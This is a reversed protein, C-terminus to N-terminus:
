PDDPKRTRKRAPKSAHELGIRALQRVADSLSPAGDQGARYAEIAALESPPFRLSIKPSIGTAPRGPRDHRTRKLKPPPPLPEILDIGMGIAAVKISKVARSVPIKFWEGALRHEGLLAHVRRELECVDGLGEASYYLSLPVHSSTRLQSLRKRPHAAIGIKIPGPESRVVYISRGM